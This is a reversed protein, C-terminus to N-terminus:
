RGLVAVHEDVDVRDVAVAAYADAIAADADGRPQLAADEALEVADLGVGPRPRLAGAESQRDDFVHHASMAPEHADVALGAATTCERKVERQICSLAVTVFRIRTISSSGCIN